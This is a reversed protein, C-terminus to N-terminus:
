YQIVRVAVYTGGEVQGSVKVSKGIQLDAFGIAWSDGSGDCQKFQTDATTTVTLEGALSLPETVEITITGSRSDLATIGGKLNFGTQGHGGGPGATTLALGSVLTLAVVLATTIGIKWVCRM